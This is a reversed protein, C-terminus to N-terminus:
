KTIKTVMTIAIKMHSPIEFKLRFVEARRWDFQLCKEPLPICYTVINGFRPEYKRNGILKQVANIVSDHSRLLRQLFFGGM